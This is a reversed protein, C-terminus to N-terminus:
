YRQLITVTNNAAEMRYIHGGNRYKAVIAHSSMGCVKFFGTERNIVVEIRITTRGNWEEGYNAIQLARRVEDATIERHNTRNDIKM